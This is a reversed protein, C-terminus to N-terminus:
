AAVRGGGIMQEVQERVQEDTVGPLFYKVVCRVCNDFFADFESQDMKEFAISGPIWGTQGNALTFETRVGASVKLANHLIDQTPYRAAMAEPLNAFVLRVLAFYLRHHQPNRSRKVEVIVQAGDKIKALMDSGEDDTPILSNGRKMLISKM